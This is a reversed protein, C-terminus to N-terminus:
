NRPNQAHLKTIPLPERMGPFGFIPIALHLPFYKANLEAFAACFNPSCGFLYFKTKLKKKYFKLFIRLFDSYLINGM